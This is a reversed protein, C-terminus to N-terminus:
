FFYKDDLKQIEKDMSFRLNSSIVQLLKVQGFILMLSIFNQIRNKIIRAGSKTLYNPIFIIDMEVPSRTAHSGIKQWECVIFGLQYM